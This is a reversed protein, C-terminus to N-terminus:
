QFAARRSFRPPVHHNIYWPLPLKGLLFKAGSTVTLMLLLCCCCGADEPRLYVSSEGKINVTHDKYRCSSIGHLEKENVNIGEVVRGTVM